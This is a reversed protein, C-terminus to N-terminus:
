CAFVFVFVYAMSILICKFPGDPWKFQDSLPMRTYARTLDNVATHKLNKNKLNKIRYL